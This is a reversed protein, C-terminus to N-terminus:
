HHLLLVLLLAVGIALPWTWAPLEVLLEGLAEFLAGVWGLDDDDGSV